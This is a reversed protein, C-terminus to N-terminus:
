YKYFDDILFSLLDTNICAAVELHNHTVKTAKSFFCVRDIDNDLIAKMLTGSGPLEDIRILPKPQQVSITKFFNALDDFSSVAQPGTLHKTSKHRQLLKRKSNPAKGEAENKSSSRNSAKANFEECFNFFNSYPITRCIRKSSESVRIRKKIKPKLTGCFNYYTQAAKMKLMSDISTTCPNIPIIKKNSGIMLKGERFKVDILDALFYALERKEYKLALPIHDYFNPFKQLVLCASKLTANEMVFEIIEKHNAFEITQDKHIPAQKLMPQSFDVANMILEVLTDDKELIAQNLLREDPNEGFPTLSRFFIYAFERPCDEISLMAFPRKRNFFHSLYMFDWYPIKKLKPFITLAYVMTSEIVKEEIKFKKAIEIRQLENLATKGIENAEM